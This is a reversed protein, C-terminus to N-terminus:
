LLIKRNGGRRSEPLRVLSAMAGISNQSLVIDKKHSIEAIAAEILKKTPQNDDRIDLRTIVDYMIDLYITSYAKTKCDHCSCMFFRKLEIADIAIDGRYLHEMKAFEKDNNFLIVNHGYDFSYNPRVILEEEPADPSKKGFVSVWGSCLATLLAQEARDMYAEKELEQTLNLEHGRFAIWAVAESLKFYQKKM